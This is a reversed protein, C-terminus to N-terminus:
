RLKKLAKSAEPHDANLVLAETYERRAAEVDGLEQYILGLRYHAWDLGPDDPAPQYESIYRKFAALGEDLRQGSISVTRGLQYTIPMDDPVANLRERYLALADDYREQGTLFIGLALWPDREEPDSQIAARYEREVAELKDQHQYVQARAFHGRATDQRAIEQAQDLAKEESGGVIAPAQLYYTMLGSRADLNSGDLEVAKEFSARSKKALGMKKFVSASGAQTGYYEGLKQHYVSNAPDQGVAEKMYEVATDLDGQQQNILGLYYSPVPGADQAHLTKFANEAEKFQGTEYLEIAATRATDTDTEDSANVITSLLVFALLIALIPSPSQQTQPKM